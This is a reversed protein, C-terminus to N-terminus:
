VDTQQQRAHLPLRPRGPVGLGGCRGDDSAPQAQGELRFHVPLGARNGRPQQARRGARARRGCSASRSRRGPPITANRHGQWAALGANLGRTRQPEPESIAPHQPLLEHARAIARELLVARGTFKFPLGLRALAAAQSKPQAKGTIARLEDATLTDDAM